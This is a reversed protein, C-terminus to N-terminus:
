RLLALRARLYFDGAMKKAAKRANWSIWSNLRPSWDGRVIRAAISPSTGTRMCYRGVVLCDDVFYCRTTPESTFLLRIGAASAATAVTRSFYGGPVSAVTVDEGLIDSLARRSNGWEDVLVDWGCASMRTPHSVSHSGIIHGRQRLSRIQERSLFTPTGIRNTTVLFHGPWVLRDLVGAIHTYASVGGDDFTLLRLPEASAREFLELASGPSDHIASDIASVHAAFTEVDLKYTDADPSSFGSAAFDDPEVVDHYLLALARM